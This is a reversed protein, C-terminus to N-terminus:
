IGEASEEAALKVGCDPKIREADAPGGRTSVCDKGNIGMEYNSRM